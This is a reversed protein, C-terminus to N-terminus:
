GKPFLRVLQTEDMRSRSKADLSLCNEVDSRLATPVEPGGAKLLVDAMAMLTDMQDSCYALAGLESMSNVSVRGAAGRDEEGPSHAILYWTGFALAWLFLCIGFYERM